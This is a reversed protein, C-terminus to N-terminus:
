VLDLGLTKEGGEEGGLVGERSKRGRRGGVGRCSVRATVSLQLGQYRRPPRGATDLRRWGKGVVASRLDGGEGIGERVEAPDGTGLVDWGHRHEQVSARLERPQSHAAEARRAVVLHGVTLRCAHPQIGEPVCGM